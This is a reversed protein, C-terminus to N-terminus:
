LWDPPNPSTFIKSGVPVRVGVGQDNLGYSTEIGVASDRSWTLNYCISNYIFIIKWSDFQHLRYYKFNSITYFSTMLCNIRLYIVWTPILYFLAIYRHQTPSYKHIDQGSKGSIPLATKYGFYCINYIVLNIPLHNKRPSQNKHM